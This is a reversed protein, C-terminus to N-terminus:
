YSIYKKWSHRDQKGYKVRVLREGIGTSGGSHNRNNNTSRNDNRKGNKIQNESKM